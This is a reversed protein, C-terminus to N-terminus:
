NTRPSLKLWEISELKGFINNYGKDNLVVTPYLDTYFVNRVENIEDYSLRSARGQLISDVQRRMDDYYTKRIDDRELRQKKSGLTIEITEASYILGRSTEIVSALYRIQDRREIRNEIRGTTWFFLSLIIGSTVGIVIGELIKEM